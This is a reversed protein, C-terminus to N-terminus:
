GLKELVQNLKDELHAIKNELKNIKNDKKLTERMSRKRRVHKQYESKNTFVIGKSNPDRVAEINEIKVKENM